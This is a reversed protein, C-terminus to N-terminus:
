ALGLAVKAGVYQKCHYCEGCPEPGSGYCTWLSDPDIGAKRLTIIVDKKNQGVLPMVIRPVVAQGPESLMISMQDMWDFFRKSSDQFSYPDGPRVSATKSGVVVKDVRRAIALSLSHATLVFNRVPVYEPVRFKSDVEMPLVFRLLGVNLQYCLQCAAVWEMAAYPQGWDYFVGFVDPRGSATLYERDRAWILAAASDLGGSVQVLYKM